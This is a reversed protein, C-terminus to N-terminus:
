NSLILKINISEYNVLIQVYYIGKPQNQLDIELESANSIYSKSFIIRSDTDYINVNIEENTNSNQIKFKGNTPNPVIVYNLKKPKLIQISTDTEYYGLRSIDFYKSSKVIYADSRITCNGSNRIQVFYNGNYYIPLKESNAGIIFKNNVYWQYSTNSLLTTSLLTDDPTGQSTIIPKNALLPSTYSVPQSICKKDKNVFVSYSGSLLLNYNNLTDGFLNSNNLQWQFSKFNPDNIVGLKSSGIVCDTSITSTITPVSYIVLLASSDSYAYSNSCSGTVKARFPTGSLTRDPGIVILKPSITGFYIGSESLTQWVGNIKNEWQYNLTVGAASVSFTAFGSKDCIASPTTPSSIITPVPNFVTIGVTSSILNGTICSGSLTLRYQTGNLGAQPNTISLTPNTVGFYTNNNPLDNWGGLTFVQWQLNLNQGQVGANLLLTGNSACVGGPSVPQAVIASPINVYLTSLGNTTVSLGCINTGIVRFQNLNNLTDPNIVTLSNTIAGSYKAGNVITVWNVGSDTSLQWQYSILTGVITANFVANGSSQCLTFDSPQNSISPNTAFFLSATGDSYVPANCINTIAVRFSRGNLIIAPNNITLGTTSSGSYIGGDTINQWLGGTFHQWQYTNGIGNAVVTLVYSGSTCANFITSPQQTIVPLTCNTVTINPTVAGAVTCQSSVLIRYQYNSFSTAPNIISLQNTLSGSYAGGDTFSSWTTGNDTSQQWQYNLGTGSATVNLNITGIGGTISLNTTLFNTNLLIPDCSYNFLIGTQAATRNIFVDNTKDANIDLILMDKSSGGFTTNLDYTASQNFTSATISGSGANYNNTYMTLQGDLIAIDPSGNNDMDSIKMDTIVSTTTLNYAVPAQFSIPGVTTNRFINLTKAGAGADNILAVDALGDYTLDGTRLKGFNSNIPFSGILTATGFSNGTLSGQQTINKHVYVASAITSNWLAYVIDPKQDNDFDTVEIGEITYSNNYSILRILPSFYSANIQGPICYNKIVTISQLVDNEAFIIDPKGDFDIDRILMNNPNNGSVVGGGHIHYYQPAFAINGGGSSTNRFIYFGSANNDAIIIDPRADGDMDAIEINYTSSAVFGSQVLISTFNRGSITNVVPPITGTFTLPLPSLPRQSTNRLIRLENATGDIYAIDTRGDLDFDGEISADTSSGNTFTELLNDTQNLGPVSIPNLLKFDRKTVPIDYQTSLNTNQSILTIKDYVAASPINVTIANANGGANASVATGGFYILNNESPVSFNAGNIVIISGTAGYQPSISTIVPANVKIFSFTPSVSLDGTINQKLVLNQTVSQPIASTYILLKRGVADYFTPLPYNFGNISVGSINGIDSGTLTVIDGVKYIFVSPLTVCFTAYLPLASTVTGNPTKLLINGSFDIGPNTNLFPMEFELYTSTVTLIGCRVGSISVSTTGITFNTGIVSVIDATSGGCGGIQAVKTGDFTNGFNTITPVQASVKILFFTFSFILSHKLIKPM